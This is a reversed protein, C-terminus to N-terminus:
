ERGEKQRLEGILYTLFLNNINSGIWASFLLSGTVVVFYQFCSCHLYTLTCIFFYFIFLIFFYLTLHVPAAKHPDVPM